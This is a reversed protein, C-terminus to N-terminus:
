DNIARKTIEAPVAILFPLIFFSAIGRLISSGFIIYVLEWMGPVWAQIQMRISVVTFVLEMTICYVINALIAYIILPFFAKFTGVFAAISASSGKGQAMGSVPILLVAFMTTFIIGVLTIADVTGKIYDPLTLPQPLLSPMQMMTLITSALLVLVFPSCLILYLFWSVFLFGKRTKLFDLSEELTQENQLSRCFATLKLIWDSISWVILVTGSLTGITFCVLYRLMVAILDQVGEGMGLSGFYFGAMIM